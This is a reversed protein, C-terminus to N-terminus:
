SDGRAADRTEDSKRESGFWRSHITTAIALPLLPLEAVLALNIWPTLIWGAFQLWGEGPAEAVRFPFDMGFYLPSFPLVLMATAFITLCFAARWMAVPEKDWARWVVLFLPAVILLSAPLLWGFLVVLLTGFRTEATRFTGLSPSNWLPPM